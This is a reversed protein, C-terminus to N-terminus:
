TRPRASRHRAYHGCSRPSHAPRHPLRPALTASQHAQTATAGYGTSTRARPPPTWPGPAYGRLRRPSSCSSRSHGKRPSYSRVYFSTYVRHSVAICLVLIAALHARPVDEAREPEVGDVRYRRGVDDPRVYRWTGEKNHVLFECRASLGNKSLTVIENGFAVLGSTMEAGPADVEGYMLDTVTFPAGRACGMM